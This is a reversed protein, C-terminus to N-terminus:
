NIRKKIGFCFYNKMSKSAEPFESFESSLGLHYSYQPTISITNTLPIVYALRATLAFYGLANYRDYKEELDYSEDIQNMTWGSTKGSFTENILASLYFGFNCELRNLFFFNFPYIGLSLVTKNIEAITTHGYGLGGDYAEIQGGYNEFGLTLRLNIWDANVKDIAILATSGIGSIYSSKFHGSVQEFNYFTPKSIGGIIELNQGNVSTFTFLIFVFLLKKM